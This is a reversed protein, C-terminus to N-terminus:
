LELQVGVTWLQLPPLRNAARTEPDLGTYNTITALNQGNFYFRANQLSTRQLLRAPLQWSLSLNKLRLFSAEYSYGIDSYYPWPIVNYNGLGTVYRAIPANDGPKQWRNLVTVSQNGINNQFRGPVIDEASSSYYLERGGKQRVFQFLFDLQFGKYSISNQFGGYYRSLTSVLSTRDTTYDPTTTPNGNKDLVSYLGTAPDVGSYRYVKTIGLPHGVIVGQDGSAYSTIEINPFSMLKNKPVTLNISSTWNFDKGKINVTNLVFEWSTNQISAPFNQTISNFGTISPLIYQILQNSSRNRAYTANIIIRDSLFGLDLGWQWKRTEEWQLHPNPIGNAVFGTSSQYPIAPNFVNYLSLYSYDSIQDNGTTGYSARLKGFSLFSFGQQIWKEQSFIWGAGISAFNHLKNADGFRSSGDRRATLNILYKDKWNYNLRGFLANYKSMTFSSTLITITQAGQLSKMLLNSSYGRGIMSLVEASNQQITAGMLAEIKGKSISGTYLLQPEIIWSSMNRKGFMSTRQAFPRSEPRNFELRFPLFQDSQTNTYGFSSRVELGPIIRYGLNLNTVLNKTTNNFEINHFSALPNTWTSTGAANPAWNLTGDVNYLNPANPALFIYSTLDNNPLHNQDFMYSGSLQVRFKQNTSTGNINFHLGGNKDDHNGPFVTTQRNYTGSLLYQVAASGGSVGANIHTYQATGGILTEQWDTYRTTDWRTLDYNSSRPTLTTIDIGDNKYAEYRMDLYQRTNMLEVKRTVKGWGQQLNVNFKTRGSKGKKTTILIAGNAARSGYIATADADKLVDISEIDSPNIYNLPSGDLLIGELGSRSFITPYPVGDVVVLPELGSNISNRGQIRVTVAGGNMGSLQTVELGPVRGQLALLPNQVPQKEIDEAKVTAVNGVNFRQSTKGYAIIQVEDLKGTKGKVKLDLTRRGNLAEEISQINVATLVLVADHNVKTLTFTGDGDTFTGTKTGKVMVSVGVVAENQENTVRGRVDIIADSSINRVSSSTGAEKKKEFVSITKGDIVYDLLPQDRFCLRLVNDLPENRVKITVPRAKALLESAGFYVYGTQKKIISFVRILSEDKVDMTLQQSYGEKAQVQLLGAVIFLITLKMVRVIKPQRALLREMPEYANLISGAMAGAVALMKRCAFDQM